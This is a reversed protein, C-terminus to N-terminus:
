SSIFSKNVLWELWLWKTPIGLPLLVKCVGVLEIVSFGGMSDWSKLSARLPPVPPPPPASPPPSLLIPFVDEEDAVELCGGAEVVDDDLVAAIGCGFEFFDRLEMSHDLAPWPWLAWPVPRTTPSSCFPGPWIVAAVLPLPFIDNDSSCLCSSSNQESFSSSPRFSSELGEEEDEDEEEEEERFPREDCGEM